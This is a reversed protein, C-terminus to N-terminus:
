LADHKGKQCRGQQCGQEKGAYHSGLRRLHPDGGASAGGGHGHGGGEHCAVADVDAGGPKRGDGGVRPFDKDADGFYGAAVEGGVAVAGGAHICGVDERCGGVRGVLGDGRM